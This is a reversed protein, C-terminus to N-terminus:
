RNQLEKQYQEQMAEAVQKGELSLNCYCRSCQPCIQWNCHSCVNELTPEFWMGCFWCKLKM